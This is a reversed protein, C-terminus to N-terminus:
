RVFTFWGGLACALWLVLGTVTASKASIKGESLIRMCWNAYVYFACAGLVMSRAELAADAKGNAVITLARTAIAVSPAAGFLGAFSKPKLVDGIVAFVSIVLGGILFRLLFQM